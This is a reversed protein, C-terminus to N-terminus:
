GSITGDETAFIFHASLGPGVLFDPMNNYSVGTPADNAQGDDGLSFYLFGDPGFRLTGGNHNSQPKPHTALGLLGREDYTGLTM